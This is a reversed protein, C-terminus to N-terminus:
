KDGTIIKRRQNSFKFRASIGRNLFRTRESNNNTLYYNDEEPRYYFEEGTKSLIKKWTEDINKGELKESLKLQPLLNKYSKLEPLFNDIYGIENLLDLAKQPNLSFMKDLEVQQREIAVSFLKSCFRKLHNFLNGEIEFDLQISFRLARLIRLPDDSIMKKPEGVSKIRKRTLDLESAFLDVYDVGDFAMANITFDRRVLDEKLTKGFTVEPKRSGLTYKEDRYTTVEVYVFTEMTHWQPGFDYDYDNYEVVPVKFGLTGFKEGISYVHRGAKKILPKMEEPTLSTCFDWDKPTKKLLTDRVCGGVAYLEGEPLVERVAKYADEIKIM